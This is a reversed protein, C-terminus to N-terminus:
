RKEGGRLARVKELVQRGQETAEYLRAKTRHPTLIVVLQKSHLERLARSIHSLPQNLKKGIQTPTARQTCLAEL